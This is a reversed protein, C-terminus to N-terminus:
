NWWQNLYYEHIWYILTYKISVKWFLLHKQSAYKVMSIGVFILKDFDAQFYCKYHSTLIGVISFSRKIEIQSTPIHLIHKQWSLLLLSNTHNHRGGVWFVNAIGMLWIVTSDMSSGGCLTNWHAQIQKLPIFCISLIWKHLLCRIWKKLQLQYHYNILSWM